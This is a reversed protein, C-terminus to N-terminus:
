FLSRIRENHFYIWPKNCYLVVRASMKLIGAHAYWKPARTQAKMHARSKAGFQAAALSTWVCFSLCDPLFGLSALRKDRYTLREEDRLVEGQYYLLLSGNEKAGDFAEQNFSALEKEQKLTLNKRRQSYFATVDFDHGLSEQQFLLLLVQQINPFADPLYRRAYEPYPRLAQAPDVLEQFMPKKLASLVYKM